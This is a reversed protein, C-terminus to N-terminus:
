CRNTPKNTTQTINTLVSRNGLPNYSLSHVSYHWSEGTALVMAWVPVMVPVPRLLRTRTSCNRWSKLRLLGRELLLLLLLLLLQLLWSRREQRGSPQEKSKQVGSRKLATTSTKRLV